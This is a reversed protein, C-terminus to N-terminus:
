VEHMDKTRTRKFIKRPSQVVPDPVRASPAPRQVAAPIIVQLSISPETPASVIPRKEWFKWDGNADYSLFLVVSMEAGYRKLM